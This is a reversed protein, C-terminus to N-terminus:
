PCVTCLHLCSHFMCVGCTIHSLASNGLCRGSILPTFLRLWHLFLREPTGDSAATLAENLCHWLANFSRHILILTLGNPNSINPQLKGLCGCQIFTSMPIYPIISCKAPSCSFVCFHQWHDTCPELHQGAHKRFLHVTCPSHIEAFGQNNTSTFVKTTIYLLIRIKHGFVPKICECDQYKSYM